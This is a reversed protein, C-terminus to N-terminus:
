GGSGGPRRPANRSRMTGKLAGADGRARATPAGPDAGSEAAEDLITTIASAWIKSCTAGARLSSDFM